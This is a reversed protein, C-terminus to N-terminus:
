RSREFIPVGRGHFVANVGFVIICGHVATTSRGKEGTACPRLDHDFDAGLAMREEGARHLEHIRGAADVPEILLERAGVAFGLLLAGFLRNLGLKWQSDSVVAGRRDTQGRTPRQENAM